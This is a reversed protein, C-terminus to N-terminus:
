VGVVLLLGCMIDRERESALGTTTVNATDVIDLDSIVYRECALGTTTFISCYCKCM